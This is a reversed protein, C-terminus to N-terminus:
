SLWYLGGHLGIYGVRVRCGRPPLGLHCCGRLLGAAARVQCSDFTFGPQYQVCRRIQEFHLIFINLTATVNSVNM